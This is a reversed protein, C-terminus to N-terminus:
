CASLQVHCLALWNKWLITAMVMTVPKRRTSVCSPDSNILASIIALLYTLNEQMYWYMVIHQEIMDQILRM